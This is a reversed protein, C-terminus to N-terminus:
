LQCLVVAFLLAASLYIFYIFCPKKIELNFDDNQFNVTPVQSVTVSYISIKEKTTIDREKATKVILKSTLTSILMLGLEIHPM